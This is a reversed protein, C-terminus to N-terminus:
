RIGDHSFSFHNMDAEIRKSGGLMDWYDHMVGFARYADEGDLYKGDKFINYDQALRSRHTSKPHGYTTRPDRYADGLTLEYGSYFAFQELLNRARTFRQQKDSLSMM